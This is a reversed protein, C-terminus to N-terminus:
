PQPAPTGTFGVPRTAAGPTEPSPEVPTLSVTPRLYENMEAQNFRVVWLAVPRDGAPPAGVIGWRTGDRMPDPDYMVLEPHDVSGRLSIPRYEYQRHSVPSTFDLDEDSFAALDTMSKPMHHINAYYFLLAGCIDQLREASPDTAASYGQVDLPGQRDPPRAVVPQDDNFSNRAAQKPTSSCAAM